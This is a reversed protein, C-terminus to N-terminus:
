RRRLLARQRARDLHDRLAIRRTRPSRELLQRRARSRIFAVVWERYHTADGLDNGGLLAHIRTHVQSAAKLVLADQANVPQAPDWEHRTVAAGLAARYPTETSSWGAYGGDIGVM